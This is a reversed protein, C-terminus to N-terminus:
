EKEVDLCPHSSPSLQRVSGDWVTDSLFTAELKPNRLEPSSFKLNISGTRSSPLCNVPPATAVDANDGFAAGFGHGAHLQPHVRAAPVSPSAQISSRPNLEQSIRRPSGPFHRPAQHLFPCTRHGPWAAHASPDWLRVSQTQALQGQTRNQTASM